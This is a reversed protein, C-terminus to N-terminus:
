RKLVIMHQELYQWVESSCVSTYGLLMNLIAASCPFTHSMSKPHWM